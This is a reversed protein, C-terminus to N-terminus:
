GSTPHLGHRQAQDDLAFFGYAREHRLLIPGDVGHQIRPLRRKKLGLEDLVVVRIDLYLILFGRVFNDGRDALGLPFGDRNGLLFLLAVRRRRKGGRFQLLSGVVAQAVGGLAGHGQRLFKIFAHLEAWFARHRQDGIHAGVRDMDGVVRQGLDAFQDRFPKPSVIKGLLRIEVLRFLVCLFRM